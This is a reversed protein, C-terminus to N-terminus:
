PLIFPMPDRTCATTYDLCAQNIQYHVHAGTSFGTSGMVGIAQGATVSTFSPPIYSTSLHMYTVYYDTDKCNILVNNSGAYGTMFRAQGSCTALVVVKGGTLSSARSTNYYALSPTMDMGQHLGAGAIYEPCHYLCTTNSNQLGQGGLPNGNPTGSDVFNPETYGELESPLDTIKTSVGLIEPVAIQAETTGEQYKGYDSSAEQAAQQDTYFQEEGGATVVWRIGEEMEEAYCYKQRQAENNCDVKPRIIRCQTPDVLCGLFGLLGPKAECKSPEAQCISYYKRDFYDRKFKESNTAKINSTLSFMSMLLLIPLMFLSVLFALIPYKYKLAFDTLINQVLTYPFLCKVTSIILFNLM